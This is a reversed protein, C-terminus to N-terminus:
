NGRSFVISLDAPRSVNRPINAAAQFNREGGAPEAMSFLLRGSIERRITQMQACSLLCNETRGLPLLHLM